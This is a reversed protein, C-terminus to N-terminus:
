RALFTADHQGAAGVVTVAWGREDGTGASTLRATFSEGTEAALLPAVWAAVEDGVAEPVETSSDDLLLVSVGRLRAARAEVAVPGVAFSRARLADRLEAEVAEYERRQRPDTPSATTIRELAPRAVRVLRDAERRREDARASEAEVEAWRTRESAHLRDLRAGLRAIGVAFATGIALTGVHRVVLGAGAAAGPGALEAWGVVIAVVVLMGVWALRSRGRVAVGTLSFTVAGLAWASYGAPEGTTPISDLTSLVVAASAGVVVWAGARTLRRDGRRVCVVASLAVLVLALWQVPSRAAGASMVALVVQTLVVVAAVLAAAPMPLTLPGPATSGGRPRAGEVVATGEAAAGGARQEGSM